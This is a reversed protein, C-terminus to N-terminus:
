EIVEELRIRDNYILRQRKPLLMDRHFHGFYWQKYTTRGEVGDFYAHMEDLEMHIGCHEKIYSLAGTSCTHTLIYDVQWNHKELNQLGEEYEAQSPMERRWWSKGEKRYEIDHSAAGGFTFFTQGEITFVQGRMLHIISDNIRHIRGGNWQETPYAELLDFNEHNGDIFLTTFPKTHQLWKLWYQDEKSGDWVLGFDGTVIVYDHKSLEKQEPFNRTNFRQGVSITGHIDGTIYIM